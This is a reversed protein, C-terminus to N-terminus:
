SMEMVVRWVTAIMFTNFADKQVEHKRARDNGRRGLAGWAATLGDRFSFYRERCIMAMPRSGNQISRAAM